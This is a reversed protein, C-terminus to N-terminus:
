RVPGRRADDVAQRATRVRGALGRAFGAARAASLGGVVPPVLPLAGWNGRRVARSVPAALWVGVVGAAAPRLRPRRLAAGLVGGYVAARVMAGALQGGDAQLGLEEGLRLATQVAVPLPAPQERGVEASGVVAVRHGARAAARGFLVGMGPVNQERFGGVDQWARFTFASSGGAPGTAGFGGGFLVRRTLSWPGPPRRVEEPLPYVTAMAQALPGHGTVRCVGVLLEAPEPESAAARMRDLWDPAPVCEADACLILTNAAARVGTDYGAGPSTGPCPVLRVRADRSAWAAVRQATRDVSGRDVVVIEDGDVTLQLLIRELLGDIRPGEDLVTVVVSVPTTGTLGAGTLGAARSLTQALLAACRAPGPNDATRRRGARGMAARTDADSLRFLADAVRAPEAPPVAIGGPPAASPGAVRDAVSGPGTTIVPVGNLMAEIATGGFAEQGPGTGDPKTLVAVSDAAPIIRWADQVWGAFDVRDAVGLKGALATLREREGPDSPDAPGVVALRWRAGGPLALAAIADDVGKYSVLRSITLLLREDGDLRAGRRSLEARAATRPLASGSPAPVPVLAARPHHSAAILGPETGICADTVTALVRTLFGDYSHDHKAWVCPVGTLRAAPAAVTAAKVGNALIVDPADARLRRALWSATGALARVSRGTPRLVYPIGRGAFEDRLPGDALMVVNVDLRDTVDLLSLLWLEAGGIVGYPAVVAVRLPRNM